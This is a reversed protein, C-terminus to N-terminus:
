DLNNIFDIIDSRLKHNKMEIESFEMGTKDNLFGAIDTILMIYSKRIRDPIHEPKISKLDNLTSNLDDLNDLIFSYILRYEITPEIDDFPILHKHQNYSDMIEQVDEKFSKIVALKLGFYDRNKIDDLINQMLLSYKFNNFMRKNIVNISKLFQIPFSNTYHTLEAEGNGLFKQQYEHSNLLSMDEKIAKYGKIVNDRKNQFYTMLVWEHHISSNLRVHDILFDTLQKELDINNRIDTDLASLILKLQEQIVNLLASQRIFLLIGVLTIVGIILEIFSPAEM